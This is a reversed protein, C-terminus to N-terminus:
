IFNVYDEVEIKEVQLKEKYFRWFKEREESNMFIKDKLENTLLNLENKIYMDSDKNIKSFEDLYYFLIKFDELRENQFLDKGEDIYDYYKLTFNNMMYKIRKLEKVLDESFARLVFGLNICTSNLDTKNLHVEENTYYSELLKIWIGNSRELNYVSFRNLFKFIANFTNPNRIISISKEIFFFFSNLISSFDLDFFNNEMETGISNERKHQEIEDMKEIFFNIFQSIIEEDEINESIELFDRFFCKIDKIEPALIKYVKLLKLIEKLDDQQLNLYNYAFYELIEEKYILDKLETSSKIYTYHNQNCIEEKACFNYKTFWSLNHKKLYQPSQFLKNKIKSLNKTLYKNM